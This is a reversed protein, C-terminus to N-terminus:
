ENFSCTSSINLANCIDTETNNSTLKCMRIKDYYYFWFKKQKTTRQVRERNEFKQKSAENGTTKPAASLPMVRVREISLRLCAARSARYTRNPRSRPQCPRWLFAVSPLFLMKPFNFSLKCGRGWARSKGRVPLLSVRSVLFFLKDNKTLRQGFLEKTVDM